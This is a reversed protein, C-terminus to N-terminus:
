KQKQALKEIEKRVILYQYPRHEKTAHASLKKETIWRSITSPLVGAIAAAQALTVYGDPLRMRRKYVSVMRHQKRLRRITSANLKEGLRNRFGEASLQRAVEVDDFRAALEKIRKILKDYDPQQAYGGLYKEVTLESYVSSSWHIRLRYSKEREQIVVREILLRLLRKREAPSVGESDWIQHVNNALSVIQEKETATLSAARKAQIRDYEDQVQRLHVLKQEWEKELARTVLRNEPEARDYQRRAREAEYEAREVKLQGRALEENKEEELKAYSALALQLADPQLARFFAGVVAADVRRGNVKQCRAAGYRRQHYDCLYYRIENAPGKYSVRLRAGCQGCVAIGQLLAHGDREIGKHHKKYNIINEQLRMLNREYQEWSIYSAHHDKMVITWESRAVMVQARKCQRLEKKQHDTKTRGYAYAGAYCPNHLLRRLYGADLPKWYLESKQEGSRIRAPVKIEHAAFFQVVKRISGVREFKEFLLAVIAQVEADRDKVIPGSRETVYGIPLLTVLEAKKAKILRGDQLRLKLTHLEFNSITNKLGLVLRDNIQNLDYVGDSDYILTGFLGCLEILHYWDQCSRALRSIEYSMVIGAHGLSIEALLRQFGLRDKISTGSKGLDEDIVIIREPSWGLARAAHVLNYQNETSCRNEKVQKMSSQRVYIFANRELHTPKIKPNM